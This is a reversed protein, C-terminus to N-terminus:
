MMDALRGGFTANPARFGVRGSTLILAYALRCARKNGDTFPQATMISGYTCLALDYWGTAGSAPAARGGAEDLIENLLYMGGVNSPYKQMAATNNWGRFGPAGPALTQWAAYLANPNRGLPWSGDMKRMTRYATLFAAASGHVGHTLFDEAKAWDVPKPPVAPANGVPPPPAPRAVYYNTEPETANQLDTYLTGNDRRHRLSAIYTQRGRIHLIDFSIFSDMADVFDAFGKTDAFRLDLVAPPDSAQNGLSWVGGVPNLRRAADFMDDLAQTALASGVIAAYEGYSGRVRMTTKFQSRSVSFAGTVPAYTPPTARKFPNRM